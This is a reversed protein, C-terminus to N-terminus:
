GAMAADLDVFERFRTIRGGELTFVHVAGYGEANGGARRTGDARLLAVVQDSGLAAIGEVDLGLQEWAGGLGQFFTMAGDTGKFTGGHVLTEPAHWAVDDALLGVVTPIDGTGFAEYAQQVLEVNTTM